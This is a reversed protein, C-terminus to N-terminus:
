ATQQEHENEKQISETIMQRKQSEIIELQELTKEYEEQKDKPLKEVIQPLYNRLIYRITDSYSGEFGCVYGFAIVQRKLDSEIRISMKDDLLTLKM